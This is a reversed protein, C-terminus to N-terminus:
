LHGEALCRRLAYVRLKFRSNKIKKYMIDMFALVSLSRHGGNGAMREAHLRSKACTLQPPIRNTDSVFVTTILLRDEYLDYLLQPPIRNMDSVYTFPQKDIRMRVTCIMCVTSTSRVLYM